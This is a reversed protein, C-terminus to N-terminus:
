MELGLGDASAEATGRPTLIYAIGSGSRDGSLGSRPPHDLDLTNIEAVFEDKVAIEPLRQAM